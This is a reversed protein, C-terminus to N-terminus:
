ESAGAFQDILCSFTRLVVPLAARRGIELVAPSEGAQPEVAKELGPVPRVDIAWRNMPPYQPYNIWTGDPVASVVVVEILCTVSM